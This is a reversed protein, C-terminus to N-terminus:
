SLYMIRHNILSTLILNIYNEIKIEFVQFILILGVIYM